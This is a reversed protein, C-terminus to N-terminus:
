TAFAVRITSCKKWTDGLWGFRIIGFRSNWFRAFCLYNPHEEPDIHSGNFPDRLGQAFTHRHRILPLPVTGAYILIRLFAM